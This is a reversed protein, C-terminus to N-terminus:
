AYIEHRQNPHDWVVRREGKRDQLIVSPHSGLQWAADALAIATVMAAEYTYPGIYTDDNIKVIWEGRKPLIEIQATNM